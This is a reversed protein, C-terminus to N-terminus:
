GLGVKRLVAAVGSRSCGVHEAIQRYSWGGTHLRAIEDYDLTRGPNPRAHKGGTLHIWGDGSVIRQITYQVVGYEAALRHQPIRETAYRRRIELVDTDALKAGHHDEGMQPNTNGPSLGSTIAHAVNQEQTTWELNDAHNNLPNGDLHNVVDCGPRRVVYAEAVLRHVYDVGRGALSVRVYGNDHVWGLDRGVGWRNDGLRDRFRRVRGRDSVCYDMCGAVPVWCEASM